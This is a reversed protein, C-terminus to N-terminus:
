HKIIDQQSIDEEQYSELLRDPLGSMKQEMLRRSYKYVIYFLIPYLWMGPFLPLLYKIGAVILIAPVTVAAFFSFVKSRIITGREASQLITETTEDPAPGPITRQRIIGIGLVLIISLMGLTISLPLFLGTDNIWNDKIMWKYYDPIRYRVLLVFVTSLILVPWLNLRHYASLRKKLPKDTRRAYLIGAALLILSLIPVALIASLINITDKMPPAPLVTIQEMNEDTINYETGNDLTKGPKTINSKAYTAVRVAAYPKYGDEKLSELIRRIKITNSPKFTIRARDTEVCAAATYGPQKLTFIYSIAMDASNMAKELSRGLSNPEVEPDAQIMIIIGTVDVMALFYVSNKTPLEKPIGLEREHMKKFRKELASITNPQNDSPVIKAASIPHAWILLMLFIVINIIKNHNAMKKM